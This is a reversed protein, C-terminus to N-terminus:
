SLRDAKGAIEEAAVVIAAEFRAYDTPETGLRGDVAIIVRISVVDRIREHIGIGFARQLVTISGM